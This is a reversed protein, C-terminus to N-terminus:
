VRIEVVGQCVAEVDEVEKPAEVSLVVPQERGVVVDDEIRVGVGRYGEPYLESRPIYLGPEVTVVMGEVLRRTRPVSPCDHVDLGLYHGVHHPYLRNMESMPIKRRFMRSCEARLLEMALTQLDDLTTGAVETCRKICEKQVRLVSEYVDRQEPTYKGNIPWTRTCDAAYGGYEAGVDMLVLSGDKALSKNLVYHITLANDGAAVVPIYALKDGGRKRVGHEVTSYIVSENWGPEAMRMTEAVARGTIRGAERMVAIEAPSKVVRLEAMVDALKRTRSAGWGGVGASAGGGGGQRFFRTGGVANSPLTAYQTWGPIAPASVAHGGAPIYPPSPDPSLPLDTYIRATSPLPQNLHHLIAEPLKSISQSEDAGFFSLAGEFGARPGDWQEHSPDKPRVFLTYKYGNPHKESKELIMACDPENIGTLYYLDTHQHFPYFIANTSYRLGFGAAIVVSGEPIKAILAQRRMAYETGTIGPTVERPKLLHPHTHPTPQGVAVLPLEVPEDYEGANANLKAPPQIRSAGTGWRKFFGTSAASSSLPRFATTNTTLSSSPHHASFSTTSTSSTFISRCACLPTIRSSSASASALQLLLRRRVSASASASASTSTTTIARM